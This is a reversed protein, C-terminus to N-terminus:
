PDLRDHGSNGVPLHMHLSSASLRIQRFRAPEDEAIKTAAVGGHRAKNRVRNVTIVDFLVIQPHANLQGAVSAKQHCAPAHHHVRRALM